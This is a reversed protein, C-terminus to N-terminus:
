RELGHKKWQFICIEQMNSHLLRHVKFLKRAYDFGMHKYFNKDEVSITANILNKNINEINVWENKNSGTFIVNEDKDYISINNASSINIKPTFYAWSYLIVHLLVFGVFSFFFFKFTM